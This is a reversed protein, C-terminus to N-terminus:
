KVVVRPAGWLALDGNRDDKPPQGPAPDPSALTNFILDVSEGAHPSLDLTLDKWQRDSPESYPNVRLRLLEEYTKGDTIGIQFVVGDGPMTWGPEQVGLSVRLWADQPVTFHWGVRSPDKTFLSKKTVGNITADVVSFVDPTPRKITATPFEQVLDIAVREGGSRALWFALAAAVLVVAGVGIWSRKM